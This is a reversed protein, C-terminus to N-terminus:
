NPKYPKLLRNAYRAASRMGGNSSALMVEYIQEDTPSMGNVSEMERCLLDLGQLAELTHEIGQSNIADIIRGTRTVILAGMRSCVGGYKGGVSVAAMALSRLEGHDKIELKETM